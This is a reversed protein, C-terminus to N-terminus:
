AATGIMGPGRLGLGRDRVTDPTYGTSVPNRGNGAREYVPPM